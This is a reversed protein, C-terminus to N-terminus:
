GKFKIHIEVSGHPPVAERLNIRLTTQQDDVVFPITAANNGSRVEKIELLPEDALPQGSESKGSPPVYDPTRMNPYLHFFLTSAPHEGRNIWQVKETGTYTRNDFDIALNIQYSIRKDVAVPERTQGYASAVLSGTLLLLLGTVKQYIEVTM